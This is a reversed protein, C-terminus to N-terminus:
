TPYRIPRMRYLGWVNPVCLGYLRCVAKMTRITWYQDIPQYIFQQKRTCGKPRVCMVYLHRAFIVIYKCRTNETCSTLAAPSSFYTQLRWNRILRGKRINQYTARMWAQTRSRQSVVIATSKYILQSLKTVLLFPLLVPIPWKALCPITRFPPLKFTLTVPSYLSLM